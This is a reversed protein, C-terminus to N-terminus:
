ATPGARRSRAGRRHDHAVPEERQHLREGDDRDNGRYVTLSTRGAMLDPRGALAANVREIGRDDIPLVHNKVAEKLFLDQMEKLKEPNKAALDNVLSFDTAAHRLAGM